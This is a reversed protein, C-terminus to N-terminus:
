NIKKQQGFGTASLIGMAAILLIKKMTIQKKEAKVPV